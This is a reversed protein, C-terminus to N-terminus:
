ILVAIENGDFYRCSVTPDWTRVAQEFFALVPAETFYHGLALVNIGTGVADTLTNYSMSGTVYTDAGAEVAAQLYDKGDGGVLAVRKVPRCLTAEVFPAGLAEKASKAFTEALIETLLEGIVGLSDEGFRGEVSVGLRSALIDNVGGDLRDLRTHFSMVAIGHQVLTILKPDVLSRLPRFILPHHTLIVECQQAIAERVAAETADLSLLVRKVERDPDPCCMLGDNDWECSLSAPIRRDLARYLEKVTM